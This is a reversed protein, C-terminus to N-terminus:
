VLLKESHLRGYIMISNAILSSQTGEFCFFHLFPIRDLPINTIGAKVRRLNPLQALALLFYDVNRVRDVRITSILTCTELGKNIASDDDYLQLNRLASLDSVESLNACGQIILTELKLLNNVSLIQTCGMLNLFIANELPSLDSVNIADSLSLKIVNRLPKLDTGQYGDIWLEYIHGLLSM